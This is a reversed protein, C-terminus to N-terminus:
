TCNQDGSFDEPDIIDHDQLDAMTRGSKILLIM